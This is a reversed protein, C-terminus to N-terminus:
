IKVFLFMIAALIIMIGACILASYVLNFITALFLFLAILLFIVAILILMVAFFLTIFKIMFKAIAVEVNDKIKELGIQLEVLGAKYASYEVSKKFFKSLVDSFTKMTQLSNLIQKKLIM